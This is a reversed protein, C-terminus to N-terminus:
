RARALAHRAIEQYQHVTDSRPIAAATADVTAILSQLIQRRGKLPPRAGVVLWRAFVRVDDTRRLARLRSPLPKEDAGLPVAIWLRKGTVDGADDISALLTRAQGRPLSHAHRTTRLARLYPVSYPFLLDGPEVRRGLWAGAHAATTVNGAQALFVFHTRPDPASAPTVVAVLAVAAAAAFPV